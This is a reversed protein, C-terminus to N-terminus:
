NPQLENTLVCTCVSLRNVALEGEPAFVMHDIGM